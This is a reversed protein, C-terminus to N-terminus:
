ALPTNNDKPRGMTRSNLINVKAGKSNPTGKTNLDRPSISGQTIKGDIGPVKLTNKEDAPKRATVYQDILGQLTISPGGRTNVVPGRNKNIPPKRESQQNKSDKHEEPIAM